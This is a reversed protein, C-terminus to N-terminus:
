RCGSKMGYNASEPPHWSDCSPGTQCRGKKYSYCVLAPGKRDLAGFVDVVLDSDQRQRIGTAKMSPTSGLWSWTCRTGRCCFCCRWDFMPPHTPPNCCTTDATSREIAVSVRQAGTEGATADVLVSSSGEYCFIILARLLECDEMSNDM